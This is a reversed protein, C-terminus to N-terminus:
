LISSVPEENKERIEIKVGKQREDKNDYIGKKM